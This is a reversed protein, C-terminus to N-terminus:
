LIGVGGYHQFLFNGEMNLIGKGKPFFVFCFGNTPFSITGSGSGGEGVGFFLRSTLTGLYIFTTEIKSQAAFGSM